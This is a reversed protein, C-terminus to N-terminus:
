SFLNQCYILLLKFTLGSSPSEEGAPSSRQFKYTINKEPKQHQQSYLEAALPTLTFYSELLWLNGANFSQASIEKTFPKTSLM